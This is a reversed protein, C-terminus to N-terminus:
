LRNERKEKAYYRVAEDKLFLRIANVKQATTSLEGTLDHFATEGAHPDNSNGIIKEMHKYLRSIKKYPIFQKIVDLPTYKYNCSYPMMDHLDFIGLESGIRRSSRNGNQELRKALKALSQHSFVYEHYYHEAAPGQIYTEVLRDDRADNVLKRLSPIEHSSRNFAQNVKRSVAIEKPSLFSLILSLSPNKNNTFIQNSVLAPATGATATILSM